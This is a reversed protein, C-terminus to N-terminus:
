GPAWFIQWKWTVNKIQLTNMTSLEGFDPIFPLFSYFLYFVIQPKTLGGYKVKIAIFFVEMESQKKCCVLTTTLVKHDSSGPEKKQRLIM